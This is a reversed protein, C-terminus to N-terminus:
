IRKTCRSGIREMIKLSIEELPLLVSVAGMEDAARPMGYVISTTKDQAITLWGEDKLQKLGCAGDAGMGTLLVGVSKNPWYKAVSTFFIDISPNFFTAETEQKYSFQGLDNLTLHVGNVPLYVNGPIPMQGSNAPGVNLPVQDDLWKILGPVFEDNLHQIVVTAFPVAKPFRSLIHLIAMPGGTSAGIVLLPPYSLDNLVTATENELHNILISRGRKLGLLDEITEIKIILDNNSNYPNSVDLSPTVVVDLAGNGMAQYVKDLNASVNSTVILIACPSENMIRRTAEVGDMVPMLLDMLIIDPTDNSCKDVAESGNLAVWAVQHPTQRDILTSMVQVAMNLDNVIGIRM